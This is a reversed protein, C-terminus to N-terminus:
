DWEFDIKGVSFPHGKQLGANELEDIIGWKKLMEYLQMKAGWNDNDIMRSIRVARDYIVRYKNKTVAIKKQLEIGKPKLIPIASTQIETSNNEKKESLLGDQVYELMEELGRKETASVEVIRKGHVALKNIVKDINTRGEELDIKNLVIIEKRHLLEDKYLRIEERVKQYEDVVDKPSGGNVALVHIFIKTREAHRLFEDGLGIGKNAGQILGPIDVMVFETSKMHVVGLVPTITTFPYNGIKPRASTVASILSSKGANPSGILAVDALLKLELNIEVEKGLEGAEAILPYQYTSSKFRSNGKGGKGGMAVVVESENSRLDAITSGDQRKVITGIPVALRKDKASSGHKKNSSGDKGRDAKIKRRYRYDYLTTVSETAYFIVSGGDGGDGGDPGGKPIYREHRGSIAGDGGSGSSVHITASDIM